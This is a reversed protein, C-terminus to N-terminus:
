RPNDASGTPSGSGGVAGVSGINGFLERLFGRKRGLTPTKDGDPDISAVKELGSRDVKTVAGNKDFSIALVTAGTAQPNAFALQRTDRSVYYWTGDDFQSTFTPRGLTAQVSDRNDIGPAISRTLVRDSIYGRHDRVRSCGGAGAVVAVATLALGLRSIPRDM